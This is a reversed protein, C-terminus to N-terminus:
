LRSFAAKQKKLTARVAAGVDESQLHLANWLRVHDLGEQVTHDRSYNLCAKTGIVAVPSKSAIEGAVARAEALCKERGAVVRGVLGLSLAEAAEMRRATLALERVISDNGVIKPLRQLTGVDAAIGINVEAISFYTDETCYRIDCACALDIGGGIVASHLAVVVPKSCREVSSIADQAQVIGKNMRLGKRSVDLAQRAPRAGGEAAKQPEPPGGGGMESNLDLGCCFIRSKGGHILVCHVDPDETAQDMCRTIDRWFTGNMANLKEPRNLAVELVKPADASPQVLLTEFEYAFPM